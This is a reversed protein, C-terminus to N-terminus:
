ESELLKSRTGPLDPVVDIDARPQWWEVVRLWLEIYVMLLCAVLGSFGGLSQYMSLLRGGFSRIPLEAQELV